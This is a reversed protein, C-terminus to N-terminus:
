IFIYAYPEFIVVCNNLQGLKQTASKLYKEVAEVYARDTPWQPALTILPANRHDPKYSTILHKQFTGAADRPIAFM